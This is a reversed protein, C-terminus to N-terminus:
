QQEEIARLAALCIALPATKSLEQAHRLGREPDHWEFICRTVTEGLWRQELSYLWIDRKRLQEVVQWATAMDRFYRPPTHGAGLGDPTVWVPRLDPEYTRRAASYTVTSSPRRTYGMVRAAIEADLRDHDTGDKM